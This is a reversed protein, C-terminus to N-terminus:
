HLYNPSYDLLVENHIYCLLAFIGRIHFYVGFIKEWPIQIPCIYYLKSFINIFLSRLARQDKVLHSFILM